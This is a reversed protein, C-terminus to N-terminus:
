LFIPMEPKIPPHPKAIAMIVNIQDIVLVVAAIVSRQKAAIGNMVAKNPKKNKFVTGKRKKKGYLGTKQLRTIYSNNIIADQEM